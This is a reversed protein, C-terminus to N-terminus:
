SMEDKTIVKEIRMVQINSSTLTSLRFLFKMDMVTLAKLTLHVDVSDVTLFLMVFLVAFTNGITKM